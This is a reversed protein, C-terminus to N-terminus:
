RGFIASFDFSPPQMIVSSFITEAIPNIRVSAGANKTKAPTMSKSVWLINISIPVMKHNTVAGNQILRFLTVTTSYYSQTLSVERLAEAQPLSGPPVQFSRAKKTM